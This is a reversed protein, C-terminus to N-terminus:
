TGQDLQGNWIAWSAEAQAELMAIGNAVQAGREKAKQLLLTHEPNYILDIVVHRPGIAEFPLPPAAEVDPFMGVPTTNVILTCVGVIAPDLLDWTLDGRERSRSVVRFKIGLERLVFAVALSAGGSGLVLARPRTGNLLPLLMTRFGIVDTNHGTSRGNSFSVTNVAGVAAADPALLHLLPMVSRKFPITVNLGCLGPTEKVLAPFADLTPLEFLDYRHDALGERAFKEAFWRQSFSHSLSTGILGFHKM